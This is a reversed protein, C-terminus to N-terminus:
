GGTKWVLFAASGWYCASFALLLLLWAARGRWRRAALVALPFAPLFGFLFAWGTAVGVRKCLEYYGLCLALFALGVLRSRRRAWRRDPSAEAWVITRLTLQYGVFLAAPWTLVFEGAGYGLVTTGALGLVFAGSWFAAEAARRSLLLRVVAALAATGAFAGLCGAYWLALEGWTPADNPYDRERGLLVTWDWSREAAIQAASTARERQEPSLTEPDGLYLCVVRRADRVYLRGDCLTPATWCQRGSLVRVRGREEYGEASARALLLTGTDNLLILKGDAALVSAHGTRDTSWRVRGTAFDLCRFRGRSARHANSQAEQLDFGYVQGGVLVSSAVDNSLERSFWRRTAPRPGETHLRFCQAGARFPSAVLLHPESYIPWASHEDYHSSVEERWRPEGTRLDVAVLANRLFAVV